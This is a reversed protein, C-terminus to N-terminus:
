VDHASSLLLNGNSDSISLRKARFREANIVTEMKNITDDLDRNILVYDYSPARSIEIRANVLRQQIDDEDNLGRDRIRKELEELSPPLIFVTVCEPARRKISTSGQVDIDLVVDLGMALRADVESRLTGYMNGHVRAYEYFQEERMLRDFEAEKLFHYDRGNVEGTRPKRTTASVSYSLKPDAQMLARIITSKGGGSPASVVLLIGTRKLQFEGM